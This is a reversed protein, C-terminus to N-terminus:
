KDKKRDFVEQKWHGRSSQITVDTQKPKAGEKIEIIIWADKSISRQLFLPEESTKDNPDGRLFNLQDGRLTITGENKPNKPNSEFLARDGGIYFKEGKTVGDIRVKGSATIQKLDGFGGFDKIPNTDEKKETKEEENKETEKKEGDAVKKPEPPNFIIKLDKNCSMKLGKGQAKIIGFYAIELAASDLYVGQDCEISMDAPGLKMIEELPDNEEAVPEAKVQSLIETKGIMILYKALRRALDANLQDAQEFHDDADDYPILRPAVLREFKAFHEPDVEPPAAILMQMAATLPLVPLLNMTTKDKREPIRFRTFTPGTLLAQGTKLTFIGGNSRAAFQDDAGRMILEGTATLQEKGLDYKATDFTTISRVKEGKDLLWLKLEKGNLRRVNKPDEIENASPDGGEVTMERATLLSVLRNDKNYYPLHIDSIVAGLPVRFRVNENEIKEEEKKEKIPAASQVKNRCASQLFSTGLILLSLRFTM